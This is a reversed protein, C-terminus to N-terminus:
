LARQPRLSREIACHHEPPAVCGVAVHGADGVVVSVECGTLGRTALNEILHRAFHEATGQARPGFFDWFYRRGLAPETM